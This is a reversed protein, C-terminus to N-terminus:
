ADTACTLCIYCVYPLAIDDIVGVVTADDAILVGCAACAIYCAWGASTFGAPIIKGEVRAGASAVMGSRYKGRSGALGLEATFGPVTM